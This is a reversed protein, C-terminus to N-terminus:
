RDASVSLRLHILLVLPIGLAGIVPYVRRILDSFTYLLSVCTAVTVFAVSSLSVSWSWRLSVRHSSGIVVSLATTTLATMLVIRYGASYGSGLESIAGLLPMEAVATEPKYWFASLLASVALAALAGVALGGLAGGLALVRRSEAIGALFTFIGLNLVLNYSAYLLGDVAANRMDAAEIVGIEGFHVGYERVLILCALALSVVLGGSVTSIVRAITLRNGRCMVVILCGYIPTSVLDSLEIAEGVLTGGGAIMVALVLILFCTFVADALVGVWQSGSVDVLIEGYDAIGSLRIKLLMTGALVSLLLTAIGVGVLGIPGKEVFFRNLEQGSAFGAGILSGAYIAAVKLM